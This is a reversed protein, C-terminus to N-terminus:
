MLIRKNNKLFRSSLPSGANEEIWEAISRFKRINHYELYMGICDARLFLLTPVGDINFRSKLEPNEKTNM